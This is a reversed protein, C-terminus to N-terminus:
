SVCRAHAWPVAAGGCYCTDIRWVCSPCNERPVTVGDCECSSGVWECANGYGSEDLGQARPPDAYDPEPEPEIDCGLVSVLLAVCLKTRTWM